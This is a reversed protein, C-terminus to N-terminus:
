PNEWTIYSIELTGPSPGVPRLVVIAAYRGGNTRVCYATGEVLQEVPIPRVGYKAGVCDEYSPRPRPSPALRAGGYPTLFRQTATKAEFWIDASTGAGVQGDDLDATYSERVRLEGKAKVTAQVTTATPVWVAFQAPPSATNALRPALQADPRGNKSLWYMSRKAVAVAREEDGTTFYDVRGAHVGGRLPKLLDVRFGLQRLYEALGNATSLDSPTDTYYIAM